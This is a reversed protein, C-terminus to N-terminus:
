VMVKVMVFDVFEEGGDLGILLVALILTLGHQKLVVILKLEEDKSSDGSMIEECM